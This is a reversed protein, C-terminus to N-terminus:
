KEPPINQENFSLNGVAMTKRDTRNIKDRHINLNLSTLYIHIKYYKIKRTLQGNIIVHYLSTVLHVSLIIPFYVDRGSMDEQNCQAVSPM